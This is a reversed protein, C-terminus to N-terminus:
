NIVDHKKRWLRQEAASYGFRSAGAALSRRGDIVFNILFCTVLLELSLKMREVEFEASPECQLIFHFQVLNFFEPPFVFRM